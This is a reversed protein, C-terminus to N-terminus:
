DEEVDLDGEVGKGEGTDDFEDMPADPYGLQWGDHEEVNSTTPAPLAAESRMSESADAAPESLSARVKELVEEMKGDRLRDEIDEVIVYLEVPATPALNIIQLKEAKTLDYAGLEKVLKTIGEPTESRTALRSSSLYQIAEVEITRLNESIEVVTPDKGGAILPRTAPDEKKIRQATKSKAIFDSDLEKLLSLVEYNSLLVSRANVVEM